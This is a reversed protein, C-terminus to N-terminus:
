KNQYAFLKSNGISTTHTPVAALKPGKIGTEFRTPGIFRFAEDWLNMDIFSQLLRTGGEVILSTLNQRYLHELIQPIVNQSFDLTVYSLNNGAEKEKETFVITPQSGDFLRLNGPLRLTRDLVIRVPNNGTWERVNLAPNDILATNTGVMIAAEEARMKHVAVRCVDDTIWAGPENGEKDIFGDSTEAWKLIIYPRKQEHFTFFRKNLERSEKELIGTTVEIGAKEMMEIGKGSVKSFTDVCGIVVKPIKNQIILLSCPPTKGYHACPELNVYLTSEPLLEPNKVSNVANVEAHPGGYQMHYGEGIIKGNHVIVSGVMPNPAANRIGMQALELCRQMYDKHSNNM